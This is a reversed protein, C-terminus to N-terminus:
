SCCLYDRIHQPSSVALGFRIVAGKEAIWQRELVLLSVDLTIRHRSITATSPLGQGKCAWVKEFLEQQSRQIFTPFAMKLSQLVVFTLHNGQM